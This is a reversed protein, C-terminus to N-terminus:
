ELYSRRNQFTVLSLVFLAAGLALFTLAGIPSATLDVLRVPVLPVLPGLLRYSYSGPSMSQLGGFVMLLLLTGCVMSFVFQTALLGEQLRGQVSLALDRQILFYSNAAVLFGTLSVVVWCPGPVIERARTALLVLTFILLMIGWLVPVFSTRAIATRWRSVPLISLLRDTRETYQRILRVVAVAAIAIFGVMAMGSIDREPAKWASGFVIVTLISYSVLLFAIAKWHYRAEARILHWM